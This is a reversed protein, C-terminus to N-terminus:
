HCLKGEILEQESDEVHQAELEETVHEGLWLLIFM